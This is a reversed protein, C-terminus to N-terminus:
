GPWHGTNLWTAMVWAHSMPGNRDIGWGTDFDRLYVPGQHERAAQVRDRVEQSTELWHEILRKFAPVYIARRAGGPTTLLPKNPGAYAGVPKKGKGLRWNGDLVEQRPRTEGARLKCGQWLAEVSVAEIDEYPHTIIRNTPNSWAWTKDDGIEATDNRGCTNIVLATPDEVKTRMGIATFHGMSIINRM